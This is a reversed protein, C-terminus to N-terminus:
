LYIGDPDKLKQAFNRHPGYAWPVDHEAIAEFNDFLDHNVYALL